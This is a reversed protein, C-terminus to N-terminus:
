THFNPMCVGLIFDAVFPNVDATWHGSISDLLLLVPESRPNRDGFFYKMWAIMISENWWATENGYIQVGYVDQLGRIERWMVKGFGHRTDDNEKQVEPITSRHSKFVFFAAYKNGDSDALLMVTARQKEKKGCKIWVTQVGRSSVTRKPLMEFQVGTQDANYLKHVNHEQMWGLVLAAFSLAEINDVDPSTQGARNKARFSLRHRSLFSEKWPNSATFYGSPIGPEDAIEIAKLELMKSSVPVGDARLENIWQVIQLEAALSLATALGAPRHRSHSSTRSCAAKTAILVASKKWKSILKSAAVVGAPTKDEFFEDVALSVDSHEAFHVLVANKFGYSYQRKKFKCAKSHKGKISTRGQHRM